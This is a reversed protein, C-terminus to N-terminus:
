VGMGARPNMPIEKEMREYLAKAAPTEARPAVIRLVVYQDGAPSGPLGRGKLRLKQGSQAGQPLKLDVKGGLTPVTVTRGLAAEWPTVPLELYIDRKEARFLRHPNFKVELYLDGKPGGGTGPSGQGALRIRQGETVGKPIKVNLTHAQTAVRGQSDLRPSQLTITRSGGNFADELNLMIKAHHNDGAARFGPGGRFTEQSWPSARGFMAEFFDSFGSAGTFGGGKFEFGADWNPPPRFEQGAQWQNGFQDYAARKEPDKLVEYAEGVEKFREEADAASSVDPHYKRALKRYARKIDDQTADRSLGLTKYYDKFEM